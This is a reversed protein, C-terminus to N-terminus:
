DSFYEIRSALPVEPATITAMAIVKKVETDQKCPEIRISEEVNWGVPRREEMPLRTRFDM